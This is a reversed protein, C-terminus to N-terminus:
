KLSKQLGSNSQETLSKAMKRNFQLSCYELIGFLLVFDSAVNEHRFLVQNVFM